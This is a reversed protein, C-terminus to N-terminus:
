PADEQWSAPISFLVEGNTKCLSVDMQGMWHDSIADSLEIRYAADEPGCPEFRGDFCFRDPLGDTNGKAESLVDAISQVYGLGVDLAHADRAQATYRVYGAASLVICVAAIVAMALIEYLSGRKGSM